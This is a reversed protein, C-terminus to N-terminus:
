KKFKIDNLQRVEAVVKSVEEYNIYKEFTNSELISYIKKDILILLNNMYKNKANDLVPNGSTNALFNRITILQNLESFDFM